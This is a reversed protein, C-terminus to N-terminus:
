VSAIKSFGGSESLDWKLWEALRKSNTKCCHELSHPGEHDHPDDQSDKAEKHANKGQFADPNPAHLIGGFGVHGQGGADHEDNSTLSSQRTKWMTPKANGQFQPSPLDQHTESTIPM